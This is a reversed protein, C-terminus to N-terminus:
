CCPKLITTIGSVLTCTTMQTLPYDLIVVLLQLGFVGISPWARRWTTTVDEGFWPTDFLSGIEDEEIVGIRRKAWEKEKRRSHADV